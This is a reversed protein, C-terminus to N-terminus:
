QRELVAQVIAVRREQINRVQNAFMLAFDPGLQLHLGLPPLAAQQAAAGARQRFFELAPATVDIWTREKFGSAALLARVEDPPRLFSLAPRRAWPVPFHIPQVTGAMIEHLALPGGPRLVRRIEAYLREKDEINMSSHQTIVADFSSDPFPMELASGHRFSVRDSLGTRATLMEGVRCFEDTLDLVTVACGFEAALTRAPGGIGGGVDLVNMGAALGARRALEVTAPKGGTHFQDVPALDEPTPAEPDKGAARLGNLIACALGGTGYHAGVSAGYDSATM